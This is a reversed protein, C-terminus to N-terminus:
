CRGGLRLDLKYVNIGMPRVGTLHRPAADILESPPFMGCLKASDSKLYLCLVFPGAAAHLANRLNADDCKANREHKIDNYATWWFPSKNCNWDDWPRIDMRFRAVTTGFNAIQPLATHIEARYEDIRSATSGASIKKCLLTAVVDVESGASLLIRTAELSFCGFNRSDFEVYRSLPVLDRELSLFYNWHLDVDAM